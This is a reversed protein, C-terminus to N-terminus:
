IVEGPDVPRGLAVELTTPDPSTAALARGDPGTTVPGAEMSAGAATPRPANPWLRLVLVDTPLDPTFRVTVEGSVTGPGPQVDVTATYTPRDPDPRAMPPPALCGEIPVLISEPPITTTPPVTTTSSAAAATTTAADGPRVAPDQGGSCAAVVVAVIAAGAAVADRIAM